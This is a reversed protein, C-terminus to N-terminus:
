VNINLHRKAETLLASMPGFNESYAKRFDTEARISLHISEIWQNYSLRFAPEVSSQVCIFKM